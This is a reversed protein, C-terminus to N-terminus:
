RGLETSAEGGGAAVSTEYSAGKHNHRQRVENPIHKSAEGIIELSRVVARKLMEDHTFSDQDHDHTHDLIFQIEDIMHQLYERDSRSM